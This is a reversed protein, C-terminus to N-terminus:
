DDQKEETEVGRQQALKKLAEVQEEPRWSRECFNLIKILYNDSIDEAKYEKGWKDQWIYGRDNLHYWILGWRFKFDAEFDEIDYADYGMDEAYSM